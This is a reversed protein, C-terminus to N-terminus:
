FFGEGIDHGGGVGASIDATMKNSLRPEYTLGIGQGGLDLMILSSLASDPRRDQGFSGLFLCTILPLLIM